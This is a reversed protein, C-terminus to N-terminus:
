ASRFIMFKINNVNRTKSGVNLSFDGDASVGVMGKVLRGDATTHRADFSFRMYYPTRSTQDPGRNAVPPRVDLMSLYGVPGGLNQPEGFLYELRGLSISIPNEYTLAMEEILGDYMEIRVSSILGSQKPYNLSASKEGQERDEPKGTINLGNVAAESTFGPEAFIDWFDAIEDANEPYKLVPKNLRFQRPMM